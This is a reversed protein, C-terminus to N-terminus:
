LEQQELWKVVGDNSNDDIVVNAVAKLEDRANAVACCLDCAEFLPLDNLNDGFGIMNEVNLQEKLSLAATKKSAKASFIELYWLTDSYIDLYMEMRLEAINKLAEYIPLLNEQTDLMTFYIIDDLSIDSFSVECFSKQYRQQREEIFISIHENKTSEFYTMQQNDQIKYLLATSNNNKLASLIQSVIEAPITCKRLYSNSKLDYILVGNMLIIPLRLNVGDLIHKVTAMTRATAVSFNLGNAILENLKHKSFDSIEAKSNLLTGDLDSLYLNKMM